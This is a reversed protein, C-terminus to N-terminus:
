FLYLSDRINIGSKMGDEGMCVGFTILVVERGAYLSMTYNNLFRVCGHKIGDPVDYYLKMKQLVISLGMCEQYVDGGKRIYRSM